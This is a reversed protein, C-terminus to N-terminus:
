SIKNKKMLCVRRGGDKFFIESGTVAKLSVIDLM